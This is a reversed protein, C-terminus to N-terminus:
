KTRISLILRRDALEAGSVATGGKLTNLVAMRDLKAPQPVWFWEPILVEDIIIVARPAERLSITCDPEVLKGLGAVEMAARAAERKKDKRQELRAQRSRMDDVRLRLAEVLDADALSSRVLEAILENLNSCGDLTDHMTQDDVDPFSELLRQRLEGIQLATTQINM